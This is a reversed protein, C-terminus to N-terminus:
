VKSSPLKGLLAEITEHEFNDHKSAKLDHPFFIHPGLYPTLFPNRIINVGAKKEIQYPWVGAVMDGNHVIAINWDACVKDLWWHQLFLPLQESIKKYQDKYTM